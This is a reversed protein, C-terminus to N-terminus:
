LPLTSQAKSAIKSLDGAALADLDVLDAGVGVAYAGAAFFDTVTTLSVGGTPVLHINPLPAKLAKLYSAGGMASCPFVKIADAGARHATVVETPTLAGPFVPVDLKQCREIAEIDTAPTVVFDVGSDVSQSVEDATLVTGVGLAIKSGYAEKLEKLVAYADPVTLPVEVVTVGSEILVKSMARADDATQTRVIPILGVDKIQGLINDKQM